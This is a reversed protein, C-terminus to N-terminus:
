AKPEETDHSLAQPSSEPSEPNTIGGAAPGAPQSQAPPQPLPMWHSVSDEDFDNGTFWWCPPFENFAASYGGIGVAGACVLVKQGTDPLKAKVSIWGEAQQLPAAFVPADHETVSEGRRLECTISTHCNGESMFRRLTERNIWAVPQQSAQAVPAPEAIAAVVHDFWVYPGDASAYMEAKGEPTLVCEYRTLNSLEPPQETPASPAAPAAALRARAEWGNWASLSPIAGEHVQALWQCYAAHEEFRGEPVAAGAPSRAGTGDCTPCTIAVEYADPGRGEMGVGEGSGKCSACYLDAELRSIKHRADVLSDRLAACDATERELRDLLALITAPNAECIYLADKNSPATDDCSIETGDHAIIEYGILNCEDDTIRRESWPGPTAAEAAQRLSQLDIETSM